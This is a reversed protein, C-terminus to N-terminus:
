EQWENRASDFKKESDAKATDFTRQWDKKSNTLNIQSQLNSIWRGLGFALPALILSLACGKLFIKLLGFKLAGRKQGGISHLWDEELGCHALFWGYSRKEFEAKEDRNSGM